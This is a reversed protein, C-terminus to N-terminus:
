WRRTGGWRGPSCRSVDSTSMVTSAVLLCCSAVVARARAGRSHPAPIDLLQDIRFGYRSLVTFWATRGFEFRRVVAGTTPLKHQVVKDARPLPGGGDWEPHRVSFILRGNPTLCRRVLPLLVHPDVFGVAGFVSYACGFRWDTTALFEEASCSTFTLRPELQAFQMRAQIINEVAVDVGHVVAGCRALVAANTGIGCGLELMRQDELAGFVKAAPGCGPFQSWEFRGTNNFALDQGVSARASHIWAAHDRHM